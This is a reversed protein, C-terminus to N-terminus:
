VKLWRGFARSMIKFPLIIIFYSFIAFIVLINMLDIRYYIDNTIIDSALCTPPTSYSSFNQVGDRFIYDSKIYYDRYNINRNVQPVEEYGRIVGESQVVYCKNYTTDQPVYIKM